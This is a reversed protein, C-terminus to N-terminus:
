NETKLSEYTRNGKVYFEFVISKNLVPISSHNVELKKVIKRKVKLDNMNRYYDMHSNWVSKFSGFNGKLLFIFAALADLLKRIFLVKHLKNDPLNKYLLYLSNRFNLYTKFPSNYPLSGGGVHYVVSDPIYCVRYGAKHFRWCLDIEEMHAFFGSDFGECKKWADSRVIMCAGSSWFVDIQSDYQGRDEEVNNFIRGRCFPYGYKDIFSGAAGAYEFHDKNNFSLIKPQCSAVDPNNDMFSVLPELWGGTVEIDTNMLVFYESNLQEIALNYGGAFGYNKDLKILKVDKFNEAIWDQSGDTSSNDAVCVITGNNVTYKVVTGLFKKLYGLGNWNLIVIATKFM